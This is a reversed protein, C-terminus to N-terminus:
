ERGRSFWQRTRRDDERDNDACEDAALESSHEDTCESCRFRESM